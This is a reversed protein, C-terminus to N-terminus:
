QSKRIKRLEEEDIHIKIQQTIESYPIDSRKTFEKLPVEKFVTAALPGKVMRIANEEHDDFECRYFDKVAELGAGKRMFFLGKWVTRNNMVIYIQRRQSM